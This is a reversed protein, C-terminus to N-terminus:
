LFDLKFGDLMDRVAYPIRSITVGSESQPQNNMWHGVTLIIAEKILLPVTDSTAGYGATYQIRVANRKSYTSPWSVGNAAAVFPILPYTDLEYQDAALTQLAGDSDLYIVSVVTLASPCEHEDIFCDWRKERTQTLFARGTYGEAWNRAEIIRRAILGDSNTETALIGIQEKVEALSVPEILPGTIVKM